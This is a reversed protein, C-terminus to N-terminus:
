TREEDRTEQLAVVGAALFAAWAIGGLTRRLSVDGSLSISFLASLASAVSALFLAVAMLLERGSRRDRHLRWSRIRRILLGGFVTVTAGSIILALITNV